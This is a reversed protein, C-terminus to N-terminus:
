RRKLGHEHIAGAREMLFTFAPTVSISKEGFTHVEETRSSVIYGKAIGFKKMFVLMGKFDLAGYKIEIPVPKGNTLVIDVENKYADRWFFDPKLQAVVLWEFVKSRSFDDDKFLLSTSILAPYYKKLKRETKRANRSFNYLKKLLFAHELYTLYASLTQRSVKLEKALQSIEIVQGPEEMFIRLISEIVSSDKVAFLQPIDKYVIKEIISEHIYKRIIEKDKINVLEPFGLTLTFESFLALLEKEYLKHPTVAVGKFSLFERFSLTDVKFEFLRGALTERSKKGIFLSGSGSIVLKITKGSTDYLGKLQDEWGSAKQIEDFLVVYTGKRIDKEMLAEYAQLVERLSTNRFEDFSFYVIMLLM